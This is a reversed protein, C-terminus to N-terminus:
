SGLDERALMEDGKATMWVAVKEGKDFTGSVTTMEARGHEGM